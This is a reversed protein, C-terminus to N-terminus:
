AVLAQLESNTKRTSFRRVRRVVGGFQDGSAPSCGYGFQNTSPVAGSADTGLTGGTCIAAFDNAAVAMAVKYTQGPTVVGLYIAAQNVGGTDVVAYLQGLGRDYYVMTRNNVTGDDWCWVRGYVPGTLPVTFEAVVTYASPNTDNASALVDANRTVSASTTPIYSTPFSGTEVQAGWLYMGNVGGGTYTPTGYNGSVWAVPATYLRMQVLTQTTAATVVIRWWGSGAPLVTVVPGTWSSSDQRTIRSAGTTLDIEVTHGVGSGNDLWVFLYNNGAPKAYTSATYTGAGFNYVWAYAVGHDNSTSTDEVFLDATQTGDPALAANASISGRVKSWVVNDFEQSRLLVNTRGEEILVGKNTIRPVGSPFLILNDATDDGYAATARSFTTGPLDTPTVYPAGVYQYVQSVFDLDHTLTVDSAALGEASSFARMTIALDRIVSNLQADGVSSCGVNLGILAALAGGSMALTGLSVGNLFVTLVSGLVSIAFACVQGPTVGGAGGNFSVGNSYGTIAFQSSPSVYLVLLNDTLAGAGKLSLIHPYSSLAGSPPAVFKGTITFAQGAPINVAESIVDANRTASTSTTPIYSTPFSGLEFQAGWIYVGSTGDGTFIPSGGNAQALTIQVREYTAGVAATYTVALRYWGSAAPTISATVGADINGVQGTSLNFYAGKNTVGDYQQLYVWSYEAAKAYVSRTITTGSVSFTPQDYISQYVNGATSRLKAGTLTGDPATTANATASASGLWGAFTQSQLALNTASSEVLLGATTVVPQGAAFSSVNGGQDVGWATTARTVTAVDTLATSRRLGNRFFTRGPSRAAQVQVGHLADAGGKSLTAIRLPWSM